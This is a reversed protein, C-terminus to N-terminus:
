FFPYKVTTEGAFPFMSMHEESFGGRKAHALLLALRLTSIYGLSYCIEKFGRKNISFLVLIVQIVVVIIIIYIYPQNNVFVLISQYNIESKCIGIICSIITIFVIIIVSTIIWSYICNKWRSMTTFNNAIFSLEKNKIMERRYREIQMYIFLEFNIYVLCSLVIPMVIYMTYLRSVETVGIIVAFM